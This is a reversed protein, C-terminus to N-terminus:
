IATCLRVVMFIFMLIVVMVGQSLINVVGNTIFPYGAVCECIEGCHMDEEVVSMCKHCYFKMQMVSGMLTDVFVGVFALLTLYIVEYWTIFSFFMFILVFVLIYIFASVSGLVSIGGSAGPNVFKGKIIDYPDGKSLVGITSAITDGLSVALALIYFLLYMSDESLYYILIAVTPIFGNQAVQYFDRPKEAKEKKNIRKCIMETITILMFYLVFLGFLLNGGLLTILVSFLLGLLAGMLTLKEKKLVLLAVMPIAVIFVFNNQILDTNFYVMSLIFIIFPIGLNDFGKTFILELTSSLYVILLLYWIDFIAFMNSVILVSIATAVINALYGILTKNNYIKINYKTFLSGILGAAGDGFAISCLAVAFYPYVDPFINALVALTTLTIAYYITGFNKNEGHTELSKLLKLKTCVILVGFLILCVYIFHIKDIFYHDMIFFCFGISIHIIKRSISLVKENTFFRYIVEAIFLIIAAFLLTYVYGLLIM